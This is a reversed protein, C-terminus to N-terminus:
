KTQTLIKVLREFDELEKRSQEDIQGEEAIKRMTVSLDTIANVMANQAIFQTLSLSILGSKSLYMQKALHETRQLLDDDISINIKAM